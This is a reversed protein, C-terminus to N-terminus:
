LVSMEDNDVTVNIDTLWDISYGCSVDIYAIKPNDGDLEKEVLEVFEKWRM